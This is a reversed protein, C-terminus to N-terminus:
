FGLEFNDSSPKVADNFYDNDIVDHILAMREILAMGGRQKTLALAGACAQSDKKCTGTKTTKHCQFTHSEGSILDAIISERRGKSLLISNAKDTTFPCNKCPKKLGIHAQTPTLM